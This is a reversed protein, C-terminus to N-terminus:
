EGPLPDSKGGAITVLSLFVGRDTKDTFVTASGDAFAVCAFGVHVGGFQGPSAVLPQNPDVTRITSPGGRLWPGVNAATEAFLISQALGDTITAFPTQLDYRFCGAKPNTVPFTAADPGIGGLGVYYTPAPEAPDPKFNLATPILANITTKAYKLNAPADWTASRDLGTLIASTDQRRQNVYPLALPLWSLREDPKLSGNVITGAPIAALASMDKLRKAETDKGPGVPDLQDPRVALVAFQGLERLNNLSYVRNQSARQGVIGVALLGVTVAIVLIAFALVFWRRPM